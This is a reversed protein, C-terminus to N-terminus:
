GLRSGIFAVIGVSLIAIVMGILANIITTLAKKAADPEGQSIVYQISGYVIFGLAVLGALRLLMDLIAMVILLLDGPMSFGVVQCSSEAGVKIYQVDLYDYWRPFEFFGRKCQQDVASFITPLLSSFM